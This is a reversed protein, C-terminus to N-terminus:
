EQFDPIQKQILEILERLFQKRGSTGVYKGKLNEREWKEDEWNDKIPTIYRKIIEQNLQNKCHKLIPKLLKLFASVGRNTFIIYKEPDNWQLSFISKLVGFYLRLVTIYEESNNSPYYQRLIGRPGILSQLDNNTFNRLTIYQKGIDLLRIKDKFPSSNNLGVVVKIAMLERNEQCEVENDTYKLYTVLNADVRRMNDNIAVFIDRKKDSDVNKLGIVSLNFNERTHPDTNVFGFLRHQGDIMEISAYELPIGLLGLEYNMKSLTIKEGESDKEPFPIPTWKVNDSLHIILNPPLIANNQTVYKKISGLRRKNVMRQYADASGQAKRFIVCTKLLREPSTTFMFLETPSNEYPQRIKLALINHVNVEEKTKIGFSHIIEYKAYEGITDVITEYYHLEKEGWVKIHNDHALKIEDESLDINTYVFLCANAKAIKILPIYDHVYTSFSERLEKATTNEGIIKISLSDISASLDLSRTKGNSLTLKEEDPNKLNPKTDFGAREFLSWVRTNLVNGKDVM